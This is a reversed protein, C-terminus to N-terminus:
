MYGIYKNYRGDSENIEGTRKNVVRCTGGDSVWYEVLNTEKIKKWNLNSM